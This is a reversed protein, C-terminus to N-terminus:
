NRLSNGTELLTKIDSLLWWWGGGAGEVFGGVMAAVNPAGELEHIVTLETLGDGRDAIEYTLRTTAEDPAWCARWTQVLKHPPNSEIIEGEAAIDPVGMTKMFENSPQRFVGGPRLDYEVAMRYGYKKTWEPDTIADWIAQPTTKILVRYLQTSPAVITM